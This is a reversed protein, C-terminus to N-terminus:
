QIVVEELKYCLSKQWECNKLLYKVMDANDIFKNAYLKILGSKFNQKDKIEDLLVNLSIICGEIEDISYENVKTNLDCYLKTNPIRKLELLYYRLTNYYFQAISTNKM